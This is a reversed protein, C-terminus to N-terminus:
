NVPAGDKPADTNLSQNPETAGSSRVIRYYYLPITVPAFLFLSMVWYPHRYRVMHWLVYFVSPVIFVTLCSLIGHFIRGIETAEFTEMSIFWRSFAYAVLFTFAGMGINLFFSKKM